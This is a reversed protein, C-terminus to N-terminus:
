ARGQMLAECQAKAYREADPGYQWTRRSLRSRYRPRIVYTGAEATSGDTLTVEVEERRYYEGEYRDIRQWAGPPINRVLQGVVRGNEDAVIAPYAAAKVALCSYGDLVAEEVSLEREVLARLLPQYMLTGYCFLNGM